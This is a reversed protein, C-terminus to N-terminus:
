AVERRITRTALFMVVVAIGALVLLDVQVTTDDLGAGRIMVARLAELGYTLPMLRALPQLLEPLQEIPWLLGCLLVQPVIVVPIFQIVQFETRAFTSLFIGLNVAGIALLLVVLFLLIPSGANALGLGIGFAPIPGIAPVQVDALVFALIVAVQLAAFIGFGLSYGTVIEPRTVPTSLLRELTGGTRERLFSIGTLLFVFFYAFFGVFAPGFADVQTADPSGYVTEREVTPARVLGGPTGSMAGAVVKQVALVNTADGVPNLGPTVITITPSEGALIAASTGAPIVLLVDARDDILMQRGAAEDPAQGVYVVDGAEGAAVFAADIARAAMADGVVIAVRPVAGGQEGLIWGVLSFMVIPVVFLLALTRRDRRFQSVIRQTIARVRRATM